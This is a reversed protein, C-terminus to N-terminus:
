PDSCISSTSNFGFWIFHSKEPIEVKPSTKRDGSKDLHNTDCKRFKTASEESSAGSVAGEGGPWSLQPPYHDISNYDIAFKM